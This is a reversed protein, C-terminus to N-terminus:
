ELIWHHPRFFIWVMYRVWNEWSLAALEEDTLMENDSTLAQWACCTWYFFFLTSILLIVVQITQGFLFIAHSNLSM